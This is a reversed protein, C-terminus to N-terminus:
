FVIVYFALYLNAKFTKCYRSFIDSILASAVLSAVNSVISFLIM